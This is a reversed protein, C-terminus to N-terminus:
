SSRALQIERCWAPATAPTTKRSVVSSGASIELARIVVRVTTEFGASPTARVPDRDTHRSWRPYLRRHTDIVHTIDWKPLHEEVLQRELRQKKMFANSTIMGVIAVTRPSIGLSCSPSRCASRISALAHSRYYGRYLGALEPDEVNIYPPNGVVVHYGQTQLSSVYSSRTKRLCRQGLKPVM